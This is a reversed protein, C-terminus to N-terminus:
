AALRARRKAECQRRGEPTTHRHPCRWSPMRLMHRRFAELQPHHSHCVCILNALGYPDGGDEVAVIHHV